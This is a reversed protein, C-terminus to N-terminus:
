LLNQPVICWSDIKESYSNRSGLLFIRYGWTLELNRTYTRVRTGEYLHKRGEREKPRGGQRGERDSLEWSHEGRRKVLSVVRWRISEEETWNMADRMHPLLRCDM